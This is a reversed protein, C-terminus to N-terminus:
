AHLANYAHRGRKLVPTRVVAANVGERVATWHKSVPAQRNKVERGQPMLRHLGTAASKPNDIVPFNVIEALDALLELFPIM